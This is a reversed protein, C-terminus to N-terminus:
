LRADCASHDPDCEVLLFLYAGSQARDAGDVWSDLAFHYVGPGVTGEVQHHGRELCGETTGTEDLLHVDIDVEERDLVFARLRVERDTEYRYIYEPGSEDADDCAYRDMASQPSAATDRFHAFPLADIIFPSATTGAGLTPSGPADLAAEETFLVRRMRDFAELVILNRVNYGHELGEETLLCAGPGYGNLHLGDAGLGNRDLHDVALYLDIFPIQWAQAMGRIAANFTHVWRNASASDGRRTIGTLVPVIGQDVLTEILTMMREHFRVLGRQYPGLLGMDNTGYHVIAIRPHIAAIERDMPSPSGTIAWGASYGSRAAVTVRDFPTAGAADGELFYELTTQLRDHEGLDVTDGAFCHLTSRSVTSSAGIKMFVRDDHVGEIAAIGRMVDGTYATIPSHIQGARYREFGADPAPAADPEPGRDLTPGADDDPGGDATQAADPAAEGDAEMGVDRGPTVPQASDRGSALAGDHVGADEGTAVESGPAVVPTPPEACAYLLVALWIGRGIM